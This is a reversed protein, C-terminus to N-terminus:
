SNLILSLSSGHPFNFKKMTLAWGNEKYFKKVKDYDYKFNVGKRSRNEKPSNMRIDRKTGIAINEFSLNGRNGDKFYVDLDKDYIKEGFKQYAQLRHLTVIYKKEEIVIFVAKYSYKPSIKKKYIKYGKYGEPRILKGQKTIKFGLESIIKEKKM